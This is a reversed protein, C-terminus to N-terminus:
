AVIFFVSSASVACLEKNEDFTARFLDFTHTHYLKYCIPLAYEYM